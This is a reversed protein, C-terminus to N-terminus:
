DKGGFLRGLLSRKKIIVSHQNLKELYKKDEEGALISTQRREASEKDFSAAVQEIYKKDMIKQMRESIQAHMAENARKQKSTIRHANAAKQEDDLPVEIGEM